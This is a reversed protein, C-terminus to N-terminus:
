IHNKYPLRISKKKNTYLISFKIVLIELMLPNRYLFKECFLPKWLCKRM